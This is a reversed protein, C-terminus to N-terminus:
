EATPNGKRAAAARSKGTSIHEPRTEPMFAWLIFLAALALGASPLFGATRGLNQAVFGSVATSLAAGVGAVVGVFGQALNFRGTGNTLDAVTLTQLVGMVAGSVGDLLQGAILLAPDSTVAFLLARIPLVGFGLLLLPRRGRIQAQEGTLPALLAVLIQPVIVFASVILASHNGRQHGLTESALPLIAANAMQFLFLCSAFILLQRGKCVSLRRVRPPRTPEHHDPAGVSQGFHIDTPRIRALALLTPIVLLATAFFMARGSLFYGIVGILGATILNGSSQFRQNRGLREALAAHGVLGLSVAAIAPGLFGGTVGLLLQALLVLPFDPWLAIIFASLAAMLAGLAILLQKSRITDLLEGGPLQALLSAISGASLVYGINKQSWGQDGLFLAVFPGFGALLGAVFLNVADLARLSQGSPSDSADFSQTTAVMM